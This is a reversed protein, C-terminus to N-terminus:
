CGELSRVRLIGRSIRVQGGAAPEPLNISGPPFEIPKATKLTAPLAASSTFGAIVADREASSENISNSADSGSRYQTIQSVDYILEYEAGRQRDEKVPMAGIQKVLWAHIVNASDRLDNIAGNELIDTIDRGLVLPAPNFIMTKAKIHAVIANRIEVESAM